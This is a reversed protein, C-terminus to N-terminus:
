LVISKNKPGFEFATCLPRGVLNLLGDALEATFDFAKARYSTQRERASLRLPTTPM